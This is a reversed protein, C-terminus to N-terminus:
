RCGEMSRPPYVAYIRGKSLVEGAPVWVGAATLRAWWVDLHEASVPAPGPYNQTRVRRTTVVEVRVAPPVGGWPDRSAGCGWLCHLPWGSGHSRSLAHDPEGGGDDGSDGGRASTFARVRRGTTRRGPRAVCVRRVGGITLGRAHAAAGLAPVGAQRIASRTALAQGELAWRQRGGLTHRHRSQDAIERALRAQDEPSAPRGLGGGDDDHL